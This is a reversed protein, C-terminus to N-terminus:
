TGMLKGTVKLDGCINWQHANYQIVELLIKISDYTEKLHVSDAILIPPKSNGNHLLVAKLSQQSSHIFLRWNWPNHEQILGKFVGNIDQYFTM